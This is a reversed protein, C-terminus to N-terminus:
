LTNAIKDIKTLIDGIKAISGTTVSTVITSLLEAFEALISLAKAVDQINRYTLNLNKTSKIIAAKPADLDTDLLLTHFMIGTLITLKNEVAADRAVILDFDDRRGKLVGRVYAIDRAERAKTLEKRVAARLDVLAQYDLNAM